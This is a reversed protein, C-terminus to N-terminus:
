LSGSSNDEDDERLYNAYSTLTEDEDSVCVSFTAGEFITVTQASEGEETESQAIIYDVFTLNGEEVIVNGGVELEGNLVVTGAGIKILDGGISIENSFTVDNDNSITLSGEGESVIEGQSERLTLVVNGCHITTTGTYTVNEGLVLTGASHLIVNGKGYIIENLTLTASSDESNFEFIAGDEIFIGDAVNGAITASVLNGDSDTEEDSLGLTDFDIELTGATVEIFSTSLTGSITLKSTSDIKKLQDVSLAGDFSLRSIMEDANEIQDAFSSQALLSLYLRAFDAETIQSYDGRSIEKGFITGLDKWDGSNCDGQLYNLLAETEDDTLVGLSTLAKAFKEAETSSFGLASFDFAADSNSLSTTALNGISSLERALLTERTASTGVTLTGATITLTSDSAGYLAAVYQNGTASTTTGSNLILASINAFSSAETFVVDGEAAAFAGYFTIKTGGTLTLTESGTKIVNGVGSIYGQFTGYQVIEETLSVYDSSTINAFMTGSGLEVETWADGTLNNIKQNTNGFSIKSIKGSDEGILIIANALGFAGGSFEIEDTNEDGDYVETATLILKVGGEVYVDGTVFRQEYKIQITGAARFNNSCDVKGGLTDLEYYTSFHLDAGDDVLLRTKLTTIDNEIIYLSGGLIQAGPAETWTGTAWDYVGASINVTSINTILNGELVVLKSFNAGELILALDGSGYKLVTGGTINISANGNSDLGCITGKYIGGHGSEQYIALIADEAIGVYTGSGTGAVLLSDTNTSYAANRIASTASNTDDTASAGLAFMSQFNRIIENGEIVLTTGTTITPFYSTKYLVVNVYLGTSSNYVSVTSTQYGADYGSRAYENLALADTTSTGALNISSANALTLGYELDYGYKQLVSRNYTSVSKSGNLYLNGGALYFAGAFDTNTLLTLNGDGTKYVSATSSGTINGLSGGDELTESEIHIIVDKASTNGINNILLTSDAAASVNALFTYSNEHIDLITGSGLTVQSIGWIEGITRIGNLNNLVTGFNAYMSINGRLIVTGKEVTLTGATFLGLFDAVTPESYSANSAYAPWAPYQLTADLYWYSGLNYLASATGTGSNSFMVEGSVDVIVGDENFTYYTGSTTIELVDACSITAGVFAAAASFLANKSLFKFNRLM